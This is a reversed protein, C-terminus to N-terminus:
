LFLAIGFFCYLGSRAVSRFMVMMVVVAAVIALVSVVVAVCRGGGGGVGGSVGDIALVAPAHKHGM